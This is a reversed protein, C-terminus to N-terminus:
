TTASTTRAVTRPRTRPWRWSATRSQEAAQVPPIEHTHTRDASDIHAWTAISIMASSVCHRPLSLQPSLTSAATDYMCSMNSSAAAAASPVGAGVTIVDDVAAEAASVLCAFCCRPCDDDDDDVGDFAGFQVANCASGFLSLKDRAASTCRRNLA